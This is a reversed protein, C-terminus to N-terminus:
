KKLKDASWRGASRTIDIGWGLSHNPKFGHVLYFEKSMERIEDFSPQKFDSFWIITEM